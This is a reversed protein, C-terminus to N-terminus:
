LLLNLEEVENVPYYPVLADPQAVYAGNYLKWYANRVNKAPHFLGGWAYNMSVGPGLAMRLGELGELIRSIVHPSTEFVNPLLLNMCHIFADELGRGACNFALHKICTAATQRHVLDRDTLADQLLPILPYIYDKSMPGIYELIFALAKLIGNQVNTDPTRYENMLAPIVVFPGCTKAVIGIAISTNVRLQREQVKLNNLLTVLVDQPGIAKAIYGFTRNAAVRISKVPSKLMELLESCIRMWEKPSVYEPGRRAIRGVLKVTSEQVLPHNNRLIPTLSLLIQNPPPQLDTLRIQAAAKDMASIIAALVEPYVEGLSEFLIINFKNILATEECHKFVPILLACLSAAHTRVLPKKHKLHELIISSVPSIYPKMRTNLSKAVTGISRYVIREGNTQDQFAILLADLLRAELREDVDTMGLAKVVRNVAHAGMTRFPESEDKLPYILKELTFAAGTKNALLVTTFTVINNLQRDLASRRVWFQKFFEAALEKRLYQPTVGETVSLKQIVFLVTKKMDENPSNFERKVIKMVEEAYYSAYEPDMLPILFGLAKLFAALERGRNQKVGRWLPELVPNFREIGYPQCSQALSSVTQAAIIRVPPHEDQFGKEICAILDDLYPLSGIGVLIAIQQIIKIGTHRAKWSKKSRCVLRLFPITQSVGFAKSVVAMARATTNRVYEDEHDLDPRMTYIMTPLGVAKALTTIIDRGTSRTLPVPDILMPCLVILLKHTYPKVLDQLQFLIRDMLKLMLQHEEDELTKDLLIPLISDFLLPAGFSPAKQTLARLAIKRSSPLGNKVKLVLKLVQKQKREEETMDEPSREDFLIAFHQRDSPKFFQLNRVGPVETVMEESLETIIHQSTKPMTYGGGSEEEKDGDKDTKRRKVDKVQEEDVEEDLNRLFRRKHYDSQKNYLSRQKQNATLEDDGEDKGVTSELIARPATYQGTLSHRQGSKEFKIAEM